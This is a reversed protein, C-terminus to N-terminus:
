FIDFGLSDQSEDDESEDMIEDDSLNQTDEAFVPSTNNKTIETDDSIDETFPVQMKPPQQTQAESISIDQNVPEEVQIDEQAAEVTQIPQVTQTTQVTQVTQTPASQVKQVPEKQVSEMTDFSPLTSGAAKLVSNEISTLRDLAKRIGLEIKNQDTEFSSLQESKSSLANTLESCKNRLADNEDQLQRIKEVASEVKQELLLVQDLSIM